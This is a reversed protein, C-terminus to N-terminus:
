LHIANKTLWNYLEEGNEVESLPTLIEIENSGSWQGSDHLQTGDLSIYNYEGYLGLQISNYETGEHRIQLYYTNDMGITGISEKFQWIGTFRKIKEIRNADLVIQNNQFFFAIQKNVESISLGLYPAEGIPQGEYTGIKIGEFEASMDDYLGDEESEPVNYMVVLENKRLTTDAKETGSRHTYVGNIEIAEANKEPVYGDAVIKYQRSESLNGAM